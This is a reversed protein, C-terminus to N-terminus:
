SAASREPTSLPRLHTEADATSGHRPQGRRAPRYPRRLAGRRDVLLPDMTMRVARDHVPLRFSTRGSWGLSRAEVEVRTEEVVVPEGFPNRQWRYQDAILRSRARLGAVEANEAVLVFSAGGERAARTLRVAERGGAEGAGSLVVLAFGGSRLLEEACGAAQVDSRPRLLLTGLGGVAELLTGAADIWATREGRALGSACATRLIATAGGGPAWVSLRGRPLGGVPLLADLEAIGTAVAQAARYSLPLADPFRRALVDRLEALSSASM